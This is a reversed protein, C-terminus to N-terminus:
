LEGIVEVKFGLWMLAAAVEELVFLSSLGSASPISHAYIAISMPPALMESDVEVAVDAHSYRIGARGLLEVIGGSPTRVANPGLSLYDSM